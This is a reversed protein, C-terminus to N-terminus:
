PAPSGGLATNLLHALRAGALAAQLQAVQLAGAHYDDDLHYPGPGWGVPPSYVVRKALMLCAQLWQTPDTEAALRPYPRPFFQLARLVVRPNNSTGLLDDWYEHLNYDCRRGKCVRILNGGEDGNPLRRTFRSVAHLPQHVDAVLHMLWVLDYSKVDDSTSSSALARRFALIQTLANPADPQLLPTHDPSFPLNIFHWYRHQLKDAYGINRAADPGNPHEGDNIYGPMSKIADPWDSALMFAIEDRQRRRRAVWRPYSPNLKLLSLARARATPTLQQYALAAVLMHGFRNWAFAPPMLSLTLALALVIRRM